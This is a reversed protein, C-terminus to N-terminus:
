WDVVCLTNNLLHLTIKQIDIGPGLDVTKGKMSTCSEGGAPLHMHRLLPIFHKDTHTSHTYILQKYHGLLLQDDTGSPQFM